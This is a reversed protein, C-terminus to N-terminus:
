APVIRGDRVAFAQPVSLATQEPDDVPWRRQSFVEAIRHRLRNSDEGGVLRKHLPARADDSRQAILVEAAAYRVGEDFEDLFPPVVDFLRADHRDALWILLERKKEPKFNDKKREHDLLEIVLDLAAADSTLETYLRLPMAFQRCKRLWTQLPKLLSDGKSALLGFVVDKEAKDNMQHTLNMDFRTLAALLSPPTGHDILWRASAERDEPQSDRNTLRRQHKAIKKDDSLFFDFMGM